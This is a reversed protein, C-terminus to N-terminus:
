QCFLASNTCGTCFQAFLLLLCCPIYGTSARPIRPHLGTDIAALIQTQILYVAVTPNSHYIANHLITDGANNRITINAGYLNILIGLITHIITVDDELFAGIHHLITNGNGDLINIPIDNERFREAILM